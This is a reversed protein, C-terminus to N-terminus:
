ETLPTNRAPRKYKLAIKGPLRIVIASFLLGFLSWGRYLPVQTMM